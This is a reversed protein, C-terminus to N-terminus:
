GTSPRRMWMSVYRGTSKRASRSATWAETGVSPIRLCRILTDVIEDKKPGIWSDLYSAFEKENM